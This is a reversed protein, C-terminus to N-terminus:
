ENGIGTPHGGTPGFATNRRGSHATRQALSDAAAVPKAHRTGAPLPTAGRTPRTSQFATCRSPTSPATTAGRTPRTSQFPLPIFLGLTEAATAGRTPRTSQFLLFSVRYADTSPDRGAHPAHISVMASADRKHPGRDRGAHPAHISVQRLGVEALARTDRGAHPAHISVSRRRRGCREALDRGAHPAHISVALSLPVREASRTAGRTPRTSQFEVCPTM